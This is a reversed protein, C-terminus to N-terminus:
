NSPMGFSGDLCAKIFRAKTVTVQPMSDSESVSGKTIMDAYKPSEEQEGLTGDKNNDVKVFWAECQDASPIEAAMAAMPSLTLLVAAMAMKLFTM